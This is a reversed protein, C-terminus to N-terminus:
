GALEERPPSRKKIAGSKCSGQYLPIEIIFEAGFGPKSQCRLTGRHRETIIQYSISLGLGTGKGVEKTTFFPDFLQAQIESPIGLGNDAIRIQVHSANIKQTQITISPSSPSHFLLSTSTHPLLKKEQERNETRKESDQSVEVKQVQNWAEELADIANALINMFVQNLQGPYCEVPPFDGYLKTIEVGPFESKPKLRHGLILLTSDIGEHIDALKFEAQDLRSFNKLSLVIEKIRDTGLVMSKFIKPLDELVFELDIDKIAKQLRESPARCEAQYLQVLNFLDQSYEKVYELNGHIFNVPNNIEHAVGAVMQGISSMKESQLLQLQTQQLTELAVELQQAKDQALQATKRSHNYLEAQDLAIALQNTIAELLFVESDSWPTSQHRKGCCIVGIRGSRTQIPVALLAAFSHSQLFQRTTEDELAEVQDVRVLTDQRFWQGLQGIAKSAYIGVFSVLNSQKSETVVELEEITQPFPSSNQPWDTRYRHKTRPQCWLFCCRDLNLAGYIENVATDIVSQLELSKRIQSSLRFIFDNQRSEKLQREHLLANIVGAAQCALTTLLKLDETTYPRHQSRSLVVAGITAEKSRLPVCIVSEIRSGQIYQRRPDSGISNVIEGRGTKVIAGIIGDGLPIDQTFLPNPGFRAISELFNAKGRVLLLSGNNSKLLQQAEELVLSAVEKVDPSDIIKESLNFLLSIEKYKSLLEQALTLKELERHALRSILNAIAGAQQNGNVWGLIQGDLEIPYRYTDIRAESKLIVHGEASQISINPDVVNIFNQILSLEKKLVIKKLNVGVM